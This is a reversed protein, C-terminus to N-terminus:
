SSVSASAARGDAAAERRRIAVRIRASAQLCRRRIRAAGPMWSGAADSRGGPRRRAGLAGALPVWDRLAENTADKLTRTGSEVARVEAGLLKMRFVNLAQRKVDEAGMYICCEYGFKACVTATAVGHQGAGTEAIIRTKGMRKAM